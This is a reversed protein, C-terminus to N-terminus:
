FVSSSVILPDRTLIKKKNLIYFMSYKEKWFIRVRVINRKLRNINLLSKEMLKKEMMKINIMENLM